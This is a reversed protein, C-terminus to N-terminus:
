IVFYKLLSQYTALQPRVSTHTVIADLFRASEDDFLSFFHGLQEARRYLDQAQKAQLVSKGFYIFFVQSVEGDPKATCYIFKRRM